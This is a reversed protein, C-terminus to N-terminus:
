LIGCRSQRLPHPPPSSWLSDWWRIVDPHICAIVEARKADYLQRNNTKIAHPMVWYPDTTFVRRTKERALKARDAKREKTSNWGLLDDIHLIDQYFGIKSDRTTM